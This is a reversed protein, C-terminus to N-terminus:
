MAILRSAREVVGRGPAERRNRERPRCAPAEVQRREDATQSRSRNLTLLGKIASAYQINRSIEMAASRAGDRSCKLDSPHAFHHHIRPILTAFPSAGPLLSGHAVGPESSAM